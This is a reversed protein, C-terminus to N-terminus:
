KEKVWINVSEGVPIEKKDNTQIPEQKYVQYDNPAMIMSEGDQNTVRGINLNNARLIFTAEEVSKGVLDPIEVKENMNKTGIVLIVESGKPIKENPTLIKGNWKVELVADTPDDKYEINHSVKMDAGELMAVAVKYSQGIIEPITIIPVKGANITLYIRRNEKVKQGAEPTQKIIAYRELGMMFSTDKVVYRLHREECIKKVEELSKEKFDPVTLSEGHKTTINLYRSILFIILFLSIIGIMFHILLRIYTNKLLTM